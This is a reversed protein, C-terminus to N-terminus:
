GPGGGAPTDDVARHKHPSFDRIDVSELRWLGARQAAGIVSAGLPGPFADPFLTLVTATWPPPPAATMARGRACAPPRRRGPRRGGGGNGEGTGRGTGEGPPPLGENVKGAGATVLRAHAVGGHRVGRRGQGDHDGEM